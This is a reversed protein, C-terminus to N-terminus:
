HHDPPSLLRVHACDPPHFLSGPRSLADPRGHSARNPGTVAGIPPRPTAKDPPRPRWFGSEQRALSGV